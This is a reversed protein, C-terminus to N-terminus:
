GHVHHNPWLPVTRDEINKNKNKEYELHLYTSCSQSNNLTKLYEIEQSIHIVNQRIFKQNVTCAHYPM